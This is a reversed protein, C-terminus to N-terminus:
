DKIGPDYKSCFKNDCVTKKNLLYYTIYGAINDECQCYHCYHLHLCKISKLDRLGGIGSKSLDIDEKELVSEAYKRFIINRIYYYNAHADRMMESFSIDKQIISQVKKIYSENELEHIRNNLYPCTLWIINSIAEYNLYKKGAIDKMPNLFIVQPYGYSCRQSIGSIFANKSNIQKKIVTIDNDNYNEFEFAM